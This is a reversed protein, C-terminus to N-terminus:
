MLKKQYTKDYLVKEENDVVVDKEFLKVCISDIDSRVLTFDNTVNSFWVM